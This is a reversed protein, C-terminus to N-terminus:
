NALDRVAAVIASASIGAEDRLEEPSASGPMNRVALSRFRASVGEAALAALVAEALGGEPHHDEVTIVAGTEAAAKSIGASDIPKISYADIVRIKVGDAALSEAASIAEIVGIGSGVVTAQAGDGDGGAVVKSGGIPFEEDAPYLIPTAGRMTRLYSVGELDAMQEVLRVTSPGDSPCLVTAGHVARMMAVDEVGMQSPGDQGISIGAHSGCIRISVGSVSAMRIFDYARTLFAAFSSSFTTKGLAAMGVAAGVMLQEAIFMEFFRDPFASEFINAFTSNGVEGDLVYIDPRVSGLAQLTDGYAQRTAVGEEYTPRVYGALTPVAAPAGPAAAVPDPKAVSLAVARYGGLEEIAREALDGPLPKGHWGNKDAIEGVGHGKVTRAIILVPRDSIGEAEDYARDIAEVDHGDIEITHWGFAQARSAYAPSNWELQTSGRQGLRNMDMIGVLNSLGYHSATGMAEWVSGEAMESDGLLVWVTCGLGDQRGALAMGVGIPLGQGLSGTATDVWPLRPVPHGEFLSGHKRLSMLEDDSIVGAAKYAAYLVPAAHGKSVVLRDNSPSKPNDFDYHLHSSFLVAMLHASSMASTPHGSRAETTSRISDIALDAALDNWTEVQGVEAEQTKAPLPVSGSECGAAM